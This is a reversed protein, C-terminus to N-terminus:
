HFTDTFERAYIYKYTYICIHKYRYCTRCNGRLKNIGPDLSSWKKFVPTLSDILDPQRLYTVACTSVWGLRVPTERANPKIGQLKGHSQKEEEDSLSLSLSFFLSFSFFSVEDVCSSHQRSIVRRVHRRQQNSYRDNRYYLRLCDDKQAGVIPLLM